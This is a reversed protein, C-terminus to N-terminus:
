EFKMRHRVRHVGGQKKRVERSSSGCLPRRRRISPLNHSSGFLFASTVLASTLKPKVQTPVRVSNESTVRELLYLENECTTSSSGDFDSSKFVFKNPHSYLAPLVGQGSRHLSQLSKCAKLSSPFKCIYNSEYFLDLLVNLLVGPLASVMMVASRGSSSPWALIDITAQQFRLYSLHM